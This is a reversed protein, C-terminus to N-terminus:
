QSSDLIEKELVGRKPMKILSNLGVCSLHWRYSSIQGSLVGRLVGVVVLVTVGLLAAGAFLLFCFWRVFCQRRVSFCSLAEGM